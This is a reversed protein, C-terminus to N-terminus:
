NEEPEPPTAPGPMKPVKPPKPPKPVAIQPLNEISGKRISITGHESNLVLRIAGNGVAGTATGQQDDNNVKVDPFDSQM